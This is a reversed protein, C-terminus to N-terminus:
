RPDHPVDPRIRRHQPPVLTAQFPRRLPFGTTAVFFRSKVLLVPSKRPNIASKHDSLQRFSWYNQNKTSLSIYIIIYSALPPQFGLEFQPASGQMGGDIRNIFFLIDM